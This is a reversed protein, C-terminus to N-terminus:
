GPDKERMAELVAVAAEIHKDWRATKLNIQKIERDTQFGKELILIRDEIATIRWQEGAISLWMHDDYQYGEVVDNHPIDRWTSRPPMIKLKALAVMAEIAGAPQHKPEGDVEIWTFHHRRWDKLTREFANAEQLYRPLKPWSLCHEEFRERWDPEDIEVEGAERPTV